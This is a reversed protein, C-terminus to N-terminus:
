ESPERQRSPELGNAKIYVFRVGVAVLYWFAVNVFFFFPDVFITTASLAIIVWFVANGWNSSPWWWTFRKSRSQEAM